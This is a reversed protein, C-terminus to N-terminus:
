RPEVGAQALLGPDDRELLGVDALEIRPPKGLRRIEDDDVHAEDRELEHKGGCQPQRSGGGVEHRQDLRLELGSQAIDVFPDDAVGDHLRAHALLDDRENSREAPLNLPDQWRWDETTLAVALEQQPCPTVSRSAMARIPWRPSPM